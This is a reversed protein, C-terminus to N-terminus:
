FGSAHLGTVVQIYFLLSSVVGLTPLSTVLYFTDSEVVILKVRPYVLLSYLHSSCSTHLSEWPGPIYFMPLPSASCTCPGLNLSM